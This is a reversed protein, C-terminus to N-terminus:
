KFNREADREKMNRRLQVLRALDKAEREKESLERQTAEARRLREIIQKEQAKTILGLKQQTALLKMMEISPKSMNECSMEHAEPMQRAM